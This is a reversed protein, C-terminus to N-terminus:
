NIVLGKGTNLILVRANPDVKGEKWRKMYLALGASASPETEVGLPGAQQQMLNYAESIEAESLKYVGTDPDTQGNDSLFKIQEKDYFVYPKAPAALKDAISPFSEPEGGLIKAKAAEPMNSSGRLWQVTVLGEFVAGSGYPVYVEDPKQKFIELGMKYYFMRWPNYPDDDQNASTLDYGGENHTLKKIQDPTLPDEVSPKGTFTNKSLDTLYIDARMEKLKKLAAEPTGNHLLLKPPPLEFQAFANALARGANGATIISYRPLYYHESELRQEVRPDNEMGQLFNEAIERYVSATARAMRDKMTGTPNISTDGENKLLVNGFGARSFDIRVVPTEPGEVPLKEPIENAWKKVLDITWFRPSDLEQLTIKDIPNIEQRERQM